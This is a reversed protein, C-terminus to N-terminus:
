VARRPWHKAAQLARAVAEAAAVFGAGWIAFRRAEAAALALASTDRLQVAVLALLLCVSAAASPLAGVVAAPLRGLLALAGHLVLAVAERDDAEAVALAQALQAALLGVLLASAAGLAANGALADGEALSLAMVLRPASRRALERADDASVPAGDAVAALPVLRLWCPVFGALAATEGGADSGAGAGVHAIALLARGLAAEVGGASATALVHALLRAQSVCLPAVHRDYLAHTLRPTTAAAAVAPSGLWRVAIAQAQVALAPQLSYLSVGDAARLLVSGAAQSAPSAALAPAGRSAALESAAAFLTRWRSPAAACEAARLRAILSATCEFEAALSAELASPAEDSDGHAAAPYRALLVRLVTAAATAHRQAAAADVGAYYLSLLVLAAAGDASADCAVGEALLEAQATANAHVWSHNVARGSWAVVACLQLLLWGPLAPFAVGCPPALALRARAYQLADLGSPGLLRLLPEAYLAFYEVHQSDHLLSALDLSVSAVAAASPAAGSMAHGLLAAYRSLPGPPGARVWPNALALLGTANKSYASTRTALIMREDAPRARKVDGRGAPEDDARRKKALAPSAAAPRPANWPLDYTCKRQARVCSDCPEAGVGECRKRAARCADCSRRPKALGAPTGIASGADQTASPPPASATGNM